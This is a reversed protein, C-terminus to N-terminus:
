ATTEPLRVLKMWAMPIHLGWVEAFARVNELTDSIAVGLFVVDQDEYEQSMREFFPMEWRCPPCWSAWFNLVVVKGEFDSM